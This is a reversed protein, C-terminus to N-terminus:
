CVMLAETQNFRRRAKTLEMWVNTSEVDVAGDGSANVTGWETIFLAIGNNMATIARNRLSAGHTGAYFHLTYAVNPDNIPDTSAVDVNQSFFPTGVVILNDPDNERIVAIV